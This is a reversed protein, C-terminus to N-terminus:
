MGVVNMGNTPAGHVLRNDIITQTNSKKPAIFFPTSAYKKDVPILTQTGDFAVTITTLQSTQGSPAQSYSAAYWDYYYTGATGAVPFGSSVNAGSLNYKYLEDYPIDEWQNWDTPTKTTPVERIYLKVRAIMSHPAEVVSEVDESDTYRFTHIPVRVSISVPTPFDPNVTAEGVTYIGSTLEDSFVAESFPSLESEEGDFYVYSYAFQYSRRRLFTAVGEVDESGTDYNYKSNPSWYPTIPKQYFM